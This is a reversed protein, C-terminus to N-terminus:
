VKAKSHYFELARRNAEFAFDGKLAEEVPLFHFDSVEGEQAAIPDFSEVECAFYADTVPFVAGGYAYMNPQSTLYSISSATLNIEELVERRLAVELQEGPDVFGGPMGFKGKGPDKARTILLVRGEQDVIIAGVASIPSFYNTYGCGGCQFPNQGIQKAEVGCLPCFKYLKAIPQNM